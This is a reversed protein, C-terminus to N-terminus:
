MTSTYLFSSKTVQLDQKYCPHASTLPLRILFIGKVTILTL